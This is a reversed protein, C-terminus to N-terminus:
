ALVEALAARAVLLDLLNVLEARAAGEPFELLWQRAREAEAAVLARTENWPGPAKVLAQIHPTLTTPYPTLAVRLDEATDPHAMAVLVPLTVVGNILDQGAPKGLADGDAQWDLLDDVLQFLRGVHFGFRRAGAAQRKTARSLLAGGECALEFPGATKKAIRDLYAEMSVDLRRCQEDQLLEGECLDVIMESLRLNLYPDGLRAVSISAQALLYDGALVAVKAGHAVHVATVGRRTDAGDLIDDHILSGVHVLEIAEALTTHADTARAHPSFAEGILRLVKPRLGKGSAALLHQVGADLSATRAQIREAIATRFPASPPNLTSMDTVLAKSEALRGV